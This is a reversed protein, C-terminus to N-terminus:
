HTYSVPALGRTSGEDLFQGSGGAVIVCPQLKRGLVDDLEEAGVVALRDDLLAVDPDQEALRGLAGIRQRAVEIQCGRFAAREDVGARALSEEENPSAVDGILGDHASAFVGGECAPGRVKEVLRMKPVRGGIWRSGGAQIRSGPQSRRAAPRM